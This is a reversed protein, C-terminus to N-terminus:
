LMGGFQQLDMMGDSDGECDGRYFIHAVHPLELPVWEGEGRSRQM